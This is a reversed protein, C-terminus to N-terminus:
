SQYIELKQISIPRIQDKSAQELEKGNDCQRLQPKIILGKKLKENEGHEKSNQTSQM